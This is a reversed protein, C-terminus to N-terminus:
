YRDKWSLIHRKYQNSKKPFKAYKIDSIIIRHLICECSKDIKQQFAINCVNLGRQMDDIVITRWLTEINTEM